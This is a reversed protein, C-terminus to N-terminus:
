STQRLLNHSNGCLRSSCSTSVLWCSDTGLATSHCPGLGSAPAPYGSGPTGGLCWKLTDWLATHCLMRDNVGPPIGSSILGCLIHSICILLALAAQGPNRSWTTLLIEEAIHETGAGEGPGLWPQAAKGFLGSHIHQTINLSSASHSTNEIPFAQLKKSALYNGKRTGLVVNVRTQLLTGGPGLWLAADTLLREPNSVSRNQSLSSCPRTICKNATTHM